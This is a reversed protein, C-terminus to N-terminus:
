PIPTALRVTQSSRRPRLNALDHFGAAATGLLLVGAVLGTTGVLATGSMTAVLIFPGVTLAWGVPRYRPIHV